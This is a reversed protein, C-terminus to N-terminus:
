GRNAHLPPGAQRAAFLLRVLKYAEIWFTGALAAGLVLAWQAGNLSTVKILQQAGSVMTAVLLLTLTAMAWVVMVWNSFLGLRVV